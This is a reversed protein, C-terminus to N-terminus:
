TPFCLCLACNLTYHMPMIQAPVCCIGVTIPCEPGFYIYYSQSFSSQRRYKSDQDFVHQWFIRFLFLLYSFARCARKASAFAILKQKFLLVFATWSLMQLHGARGASWRGIVRPM